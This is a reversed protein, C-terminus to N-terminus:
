LIYNFVKKKSMYYRFFIKERRVPEVTVWIASSIIKWGFFYDFKAQFWGFLCGQRGTPFKIKNKHLSLLETSFPLLPLLPPRKPPARRHQHQRQGIRILFAKFSASPLPCVYMFLYFLWLSDSFDVIVVLEAQPLPLRRLHTQAASPFVFSFLLLM